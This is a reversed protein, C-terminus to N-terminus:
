LDGDLAVLILAVLIGVLLAVGAIAGLIVTFIYILICIIAFIVIAGLLSWIFSAIFSYRKEKICYVLIWIMGIISPIIGLTFFDSAISFLEGLM